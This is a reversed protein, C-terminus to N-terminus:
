AAEQECRYNSVVEEGIIYAYMNVIHEPSTLDTSVEGFNDQEYEKIFNIIDFVYSGM